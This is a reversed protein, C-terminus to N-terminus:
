EDKKSLQQNKKRLEEPLCKWWYKKLINYYCGSNQYECFGGVCKGCSDINCIELKDSSNAECNRCEIQNGKFKKTVIFDLNKSTWGAASINNKDYVLKSLKTDEIISKYLLQYIEIQKIITNTGSIYLPEYVSAICASSVVTAITSIAFYLTNLNKM